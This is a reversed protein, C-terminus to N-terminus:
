ALALMVSPNRYSDQAEPSDGASRLGLLSVRSYDLLPYELASSVMLYGTYYYDILIDVWRKALHALCYTSLCRAM